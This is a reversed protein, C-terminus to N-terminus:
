RIAFLLNQLQVERVRRAEKPSVPTQNPHRPKTIELRGMMNEERCLKSVSELFEKGNHCTSHNNCYRVIVKDM